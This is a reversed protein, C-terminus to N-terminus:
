LTGGCKVWSVYNQVGWGSVTCMLNASVSEKNLGIAAVQGVRPLETELELVAIDNAMTNVDYEPHIVIKGVNSYNTSSNLFLDGSFM